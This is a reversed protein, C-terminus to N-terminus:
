WYSIQRQVYGKGKCLSFYGTIAKTGHLASLSLNSPRVVVELAWALKHSSWRHSRCWFQHAQLKHFYMSISNEVVSETVLFCASWTVKVADENTECNHGTWENVWSVCGCMWNVQFYNWKILYVVKYKGMNKERKKGEKKGQRLLSHLLVESGQFSLPSSIKVYRILLPPIIKKKM